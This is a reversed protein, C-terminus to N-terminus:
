GVVLFALAAVAAGFLPTVLWAVGFDRLTKLKLRSVDRGACGSIAGVAVQTTSMPWGQSAGAGVLTATTLNALFGEVHSMSVVDKALREALRSGIAVSGVAMAGTVCVLLWTTNMGPLLAFSGIAVLKPADNLGRALSTLGSTAWHAVGIVDFRKAPPTEAGGAGVKVLTRSLAKAVTVLVFSVAYAIAVSLLMPQVVKTLLAAWQVGSSAYLVGAGVLSGVLAQTTSVPLKLVTALTVWATTGILVAVAFGASPPASVIGKSFLATMKAAFNLSFLCGIATTVTGWLVAVRIKAVGAGALTAVGKPVDNAGNAAALGLVLLFVVVEM